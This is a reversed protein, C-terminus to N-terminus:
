NDKLKELSKIYFSPYIGTRKKFAKSFSEATNFGVEQAISKVDFSRFVGDNKLRQLAYEIRLDTIYQVFKKNKHKQLVISFYTSNTKVKKAVYNLTCKNSLFQEKEEFRKLRKLIEVVKEDAIKPQKKTIEKTQIELKSDEVQVTEQQKKELTNIQVLLKEFRKKYQYQRRTYFFVIILLVCVLAWAIYKVYAYKTGMNSSEEELKKIKMELSPIDYKEYLTKTTEDKLLDNQQDKKSFLKFYKIANNTDGVQEYSEGLLYLIEQLFPFDIKQNESAELAKQLHVIALDYQHLSYYAKGQYLYILPIEKLLKQDISEEEADKLIELSENYKDLEYYNIGKNMLLMAYAEKDNHKFSKQIGENTYLLSSDLYVKKFRSKNQNKIALKSYASALVMYGNIIDYYSTTEGKSQFYTLNKKSIEIANRIDGIQNKILAINHSIRHFKTQDPDDKLLDCVIVYYEIAKEYEGFDAHIKGNLFLNKIIYISDNAEQSHQLAKKIFKLAKDKKGLSTSVRATYHEAQHIQSANNQQIALDLMAQAYTQTIILDQYEYNYFQEKLEEFSKNKLSDPVQSTNEQASLCFGTLLFIVLFYMKMM